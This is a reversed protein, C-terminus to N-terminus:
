AGIPAPSRAAPAAAAPHSPAATLASLDAATVSSKLADVFALWAPDPNPLHFGLRFGGTGAAHRVVRAAMRSRLDSGLEIAIEGQAGTPLDSATEALCGEQSIDVITLALESQADPQALRLTAPCRFTFRRHRRLRTGDVEVPDVEPLVSAFEPEGYVSRLLLRQRPDLAAFVQTRRNFFHDLLAPTMVPDNTLHLLRSPPQINPIATDVFYRHLNRRARRRGYVAEFMAPARELDLTAGVAPAGNAFAYRAVPRDQLREFLLLAEYLQITSPNVAIVLHRTDFLDRCYEYMFKMLPFLVSGGTKRFAPDIALASIETINGGRARVATLDFASQLPFGFVGERIISITGVVQGDFKACLTTTTPLAHYITVRLGSPAPRMYGAAVYADHLIRFCAELEDQTEAIKFTLRPDPSLECDIMRRILEFRLPRPSVSLASRLARRVSRQLLRHPSM